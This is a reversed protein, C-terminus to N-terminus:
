SRKRQQIYKTGSAVDKYIISGAVIISDEGVVIDDIVSTGTGIHTREGVVVGGSLTM